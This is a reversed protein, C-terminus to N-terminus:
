LELRRTTRDHTARKAADRAARVQLEWRGFLYPVGESAGLHRFKRRWWRGEFHRLAYGGSLGALVLAAGLLAHEWTLATWDIIAM